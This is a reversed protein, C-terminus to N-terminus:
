PLQGTALAADGIALLGFTVQTDDGVTIADGELTRAYIVVSGPFRTDTWWLAPVTTEYLAGEVGPSKCAFLVHYSQPGPLDGTGPVAGSINKGFAIMKGGGLESFEGLQATGTVYAIDQLGGDRELFRDLRQALDANGGKPGFQTAAADNHGAGLTQELKVITDQYVDLDEPTIPTWGDIIAMITEVVLPYGPTIVAAEATAPAATVTVVLDDSAKTAGQTATLRLIYVGPASFAVTTDVATENDFEVVGPGGIKSWLTSDPSGQVTADLTVVGPLDLTEDAGADVTLLWRIVIIVGDREDASPPTGWSLTTGYSDDGTAEMSATRLSSDPEGAAEVDETEQAFGDSWSPSTGDADHFQAGAILLDDELASVASLVVTNGTGSIDSTTFDAIEVPGEVEFLAMMSNEPTGSGNAWNVECSNESSVVERIAVLAHSGGEGNFFAQDVVLTWDGADEGSLFPDGADGAANARFFLMVLYNGNTTASGLTTTLEFGFPDNGTEGGNTASQVIQPATM